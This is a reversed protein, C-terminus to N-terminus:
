LGPAPNIFGPASNIFGIRGRRRRRRRRRHARVSRSSKISRTRHRRTSAPALLSGVTPSKRARKTVANGLRQLNTEAARKIGQRLKTEVRSRLKTLEKTGRRRLKAALTTGQNRARTALRSGQKKAVKTLARGGKKAVSKLIDTLGLGGIRRRRRRRRRHLRSRGLGAVGGIGHGRRRGVKSQDGYLSSPIYSVIGPSRGQTGVVERLAQLQNNNFM